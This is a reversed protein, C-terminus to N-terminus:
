ESWEKTVTALNQARIQLIAPLQSVLLIVLALGCAIIYSRMSLTLTMSIVDEASTSMANFFAESVYRGAPIGALVGLMGILINELSIMSTLMRDGLGVARMTAMERTRQMINVTVGNFIIAAGLSAGMMLMFGIMIWFFGMMEDMMKRFDASLEVSAVQPMHYIKKLLEEDPTGQFTVMVGTAAGYDRQLKQAERFPLFARGGMYSWVYGDLRKDTEGVTGVLPELRLMDGPKAGLREKFSFPLLIGDHSVDVPEGEQTVLHYMASNQPLGMISTDVKKDGYRIRYPAELVPEAASVGKMSAIYSVNSAAGRGQLHIMADYRQIEGFQRSFAEDVMDVFSMAVLVLIVASAVGTAMFLSRRFNRFINRVPMKIFYPFPRLLYMLGKMLFRNGTRPAPPRMAEAPQIRTTAWAPLLGSLLPILIGVALGAILAGWHAEIEIIPINLQKVYNETLWNALLHGAIVGTISGAIGVILAFGLYHFLVSRTSYGISRM